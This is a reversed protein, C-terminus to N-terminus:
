SFMLSAKEKSPHHTVLSGKRGKGWGDTLHTPCVYTHLLSTVPVEPLSFSIRSWIWARSIHLGLSSPACLGM